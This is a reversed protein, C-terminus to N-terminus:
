EFVLSYRNQAFWERWKGRKGGLDVYNISLSVYATNSDEIPNSGSKIANGMGIYKKDKDWYHYHSNNSANNFAVDQSKFEFSKAGNTAILETTVNPDNVVTILKGDSSRIYGEKLSLPYFQNDVGNDLMNSLLKKRLVFMAKIDELHEAEAFSPNDPWRDQDKQYAASGIENASKDLLSTIKTVDLVGLSKLEQYRASIDASFVRRCRDIFQNSIVSQSTSAITVGPKWNQLMSSDFDYPMLYWHKGGDYTLYNINKGGWADINAILNNFIFYDAISNIDFTKRINDEFKADDNVLIVSALKNLVSKASTENDSNLEFDTGYVPQSKWLSGDTNEGGEFAIQNPDDDNMNWLNSSSKTMLQMIGYFSGDFYLLVPTGQVTGFHNAQLLEAPANENNAIFWSMIEASVVGRIKYRDPYFAKLTFHHSKYFSPLPRWKKKKTAKEDEFTKFKFNKEEWKKSSNGQWAMEAFASDKQGEHYYDFPLVKKYDNNLMARYDGTVNILPLGGTVVSSESLQGNKKGASYRIIQELAQQNNKPQESYGNDYDSISLKEKSVQVEYTATQSQPFIASLTVFEIEDNPITFVLVNDGKKVPKSRYDWVRTKGNTGYAELVMAPEPVDDLTMRYCYTKGKVFDRFKYSNSATSVFGWNTAKLITKQKSTDALLNIYPLDIMKAQAQVSFLNDSIKEQLKTLSLTDYSATHQASDSLSLNELGLNVHYTKDQKSGFSLSLAIYDIEDTPVKFVLNKHGSSTINDSYRSWIPKNDKTGVAILHMPVTPVSSVNASYTYTKGKKYNYFKFGNAHTSLSGWGTAEFGNLKNTTGPILNIDTQVEHILKLVSNTDIIEHLTKLAASSSLEDPNAMWPYVYKGRTFAESGLEITHQGSQQEYFAVCCRFSNYAIDPVTFLIHKRGTTTVAQMKQWVTDGNKDLFVLDLKIPASPLQTINVAYCYTQGKELASIKDFNSATSFTGWSDDSTITQVSRSTNELLNIGDLNLGSIDFDQSQWLGGDQWSGNWFYWHGTNRVIYIGDDGNPLADKLANLTPYAGKPRRSVLRNIIDKVDDADAKRNAISLANEATAQDSDLRSSLSKFTQSNLDTRANTVENSGEYETKGLNDIRKNVADFEGNGNNWNRDLHQRYNRNQFTSSEDEFVGM